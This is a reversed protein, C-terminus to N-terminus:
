TVTVLRQSGTSDSGGPGEVKVGIEYVGSRDWKFHHDTDTPSNVAAVTWTSVGRKRYRWIVRDAPGGSLARVARCKAGVRILKPGYSTITIRPREVSVPSPVSAADDVARIWDQVPPHYFAGGPRKWSFYLMGWCKAGLARAIEVYKSQAKVIQDETLMGARDYSGCILAVHNGAQAVQSKWRNVATELTENGQYCEVGVIDVETSKILTPGTYSLIPRRSIKLDDMESKAASSESTLNGDESTVYVSKVQSWRGAYEAILNRVIVVPGTPKLGSEAIVSCSGPASPDSGYRVSDKFFCGVWFPTAFKAVSPKAAPLSELATDAPVNAISLRGKADNSAVVISHGLSVVSCGVAGGYPDHFPISIIIAKQREGIPRLYVGNDNTTAIWVKSQHMFALPPSENGGNVLNVQLNQNEPTNIWSAGSYGYGVHNAGIIQRNPSRAPLITRTVKGDKWVSLKPSTHVDFSYEVNGSEDVTASYGAAIRAVHGDQDGAYVSSGGNGGAWVNGGAGSFNFSPGIDVFDNFFPGDLRYTRWHEDTNTIDGTVACQSSNFWGVPRFGDELMVLTSKTPVHIIRGHGSGMLCLNGDPSLKPDWGDGWSATWPTIM